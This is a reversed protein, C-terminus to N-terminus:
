NALAGFIVEVGKATEGTSLVFNEYYLMHEKGNGYCGTLNKTKKPKGLLKKLTAAQKEYGYAKRLKLSKASDYVGTKSNFVYFKDNIIYIGKLMRAYTDFGYYKTGVKRVAPTKVGLKVSGAYAAGDKGFYYRYTSTKGNKTIKVNKWKNIIRESQGDENIVYYYYKGKEKVLGTKADNTDAAEASVPTQWCIASVSAFLFCFLMLFIRIQKKIM